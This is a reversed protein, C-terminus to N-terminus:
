RGKTDQKVESLGKDLFWRWLAEQTLDIAEQDETIVEIILSKSSRFMMVHVSEDELKFASM